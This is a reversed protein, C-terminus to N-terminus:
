DDTKQWVEVKISVTFIGVCLCYYLAIEQTEHVTAWYNRQKTVGIGRLAVYICYLGITAIYSSLFSSAFTNSDFQYSYGEWRLGMKFNDPLAQKDFLAWVLFFNGAVEPSYMYDCIILALGQM